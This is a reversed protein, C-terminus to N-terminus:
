REGDGQLTGRETRGALNELNGLALGSLPLGLEAAMAAVYWLVDQLEKVVKERREPPLTDTVISGSPLTEILDDDRWSKFVQGAMEGAEGNLKGAIYSLGLATGKGPWNANQIAFSQYVDLGKRFAPQDLLEVDDRTVKNIANEAITEATVANKHMATIERHKQVLDDACEKCIKPGGCRAVRGDPRKYVWGHGTNTMGDLKM